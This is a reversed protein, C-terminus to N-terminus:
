FHKLLNDAAKLYISVDRPLPVIALENVMEGFRVVLANEKPFMFIYQGFMGSFYPIIENNHKVLWIHKAYFDVPKNKYKLWTAPKIMEDIYKSSVIQVGNYKGKNLVLLGLKAYDEATAYFCCFAKTTGNIKDKSWYADHQAGLPQWLKKYAYQWLPEGTAKELVKALLLTNGCQYKWEVGPQSVVHNQEILSDLNSGYYAMIIDSFPNAFDENWKTGSSMTLLDIIRLSTDNGVNYFPLFDSVKQNVSEIYGEDIAIGICLSVITKAVSFSNFKSTKNAGLYYKEFIVKNDKIVLFAMTRMLSMELKIRRPLNYYNAGFAYDLALPNTAKLTDYDYCKYDSLRPFGCKLFKQIHEPQSFTPMLISNLVIVFIIRKYM